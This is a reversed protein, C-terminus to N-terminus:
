NAVNDALQDLTIQELSTFAAPSLALKTTLVLVFPSRTTYEKWAQNM